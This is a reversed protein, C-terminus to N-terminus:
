QINKSANEQAQAPADLEAVYLHQPKVYFLKANIPDLNITHATDRNMARIGSWRANRLEDDGEEIMLEILRGGLAFCVKGNNKDGEVKHDEGIVALNFFEIPFFRASGPLLGDLSQNWFCVYRGGEFERRYHLEVFVRGALADKRETPINPSEPDVRLFYAMCVTYKELTLLSNNRAIHHVEEITYETHKAKVEELKAYTPCYFALNQLNEPLMQLFNAAKSQIDQQFQMIMQKKAVESAINRWTCCVLTNTRVNEEPSCFAMINFLIEEPFHNELTVSM